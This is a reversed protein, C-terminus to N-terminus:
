PDYIIVYIFVEPRNLGFVVVGSEEGDLYKVLLDDPIPANATTESAIPRGTILREKCNSIMPFVVKRGPKHGRLSLSTINIALRTSGLTRCFLM